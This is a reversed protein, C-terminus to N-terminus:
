TSTIAGNKNSLDIKFGDESVFWCWRTVYEWYYEWDHPLALTMFMWLGDGLIVSFIPPIHHYLDDGSMTAEHPDGYKQCTTKRDPCRCGPRSSQSFRKCWQIPKNLPCNSGSLWPNKGDFIPSEPELKGMLYLTKRYILNEWWGIRHNCWIRQMEWSWKIMELLIKGMWMKFPPYYNHSIIIVIPFHHIFRYVIIMIIM